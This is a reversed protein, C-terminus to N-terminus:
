IYLENNKRKRHKKRLIIQKQNTPYNAVITSALVVCKESLTLTLKM